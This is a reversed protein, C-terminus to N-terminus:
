GCAANDNTIEKFLSEWKRATREMSFRERVELASEALKKRLEADSMLNDLATSLGDSDSVPVLKGNVNNRIMDRPGTDCDFSVVPLGYAMAELLTNPFGEFRSSM